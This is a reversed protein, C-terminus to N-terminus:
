APGCTASTTSRSISYSRRPVIQRRGQHQYRGDLAAQLIAVHRRMRELERLVTRRFVGFTDALEHVTVRPMTRLRILLELLRAVRAM